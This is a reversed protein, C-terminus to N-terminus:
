ATDFQAHRGEQALHIAALVYARVIASPLYLDKDHWLPPGDPGDLSHMLWAHGRRVARERRP